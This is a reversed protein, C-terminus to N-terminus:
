IDRHGSSRVFLWHESDLRLIYVCSGTLENHMSCMPLNTTQRPMATMIVDNSELASRATSWRMITPMSASRMSPTTSIWKRIDALPAPKAGGQVAGASPQVLGQPFRCARGKGLKTSSGRWTIACTVAVCVLVKESVWLSM